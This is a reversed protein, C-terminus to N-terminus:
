QEGRVSCRQVGLGDVRLEVTDGDKIFIPSPKKGAGVGPPTGTTIVDGPFLTFLTSLYAVCQRVSFIMTETSGDQMRTATGDASIVDTTMKLSQPDGIEDKTVMWPGLPGFTDCSKAKAEGGEKQYARESVDNVISDAFPRRRRGPATLNTAPAITPDVAAGDRFSVLFDVCWFGAVFDMADEEAIYKGICFSILHLFLNWSVSLANEM